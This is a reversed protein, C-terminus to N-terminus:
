PRRPRPRSAPAHRRASAARRARSSGPRRRAQPPIFPASTAPSPRGDITTVRAVRTMRRSDSRQPRSPAPPGRVERVTELPEARPLIPPVTPPRQPHRDNHEQGEGPGQPVQRGAPGHVGGPESGSAARSAPCGAWAHDDEADEDVIPASEPSAASSSRRGTRGRRGSRRRRAQFELRDGGDHDAARRDRPPLPVSSRCGSRRGGQEGRDARREHIRCTWGCHSFAM